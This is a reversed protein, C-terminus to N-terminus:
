KPERNNNRPRERKSVDASKDPAFCKLDEDSIGSMRWSSIDGSDRKAAWSPGDTNAKLTVRDPKSVSASLAARKVLKGNSLLEESRLGDNIIISLKFMPGKREGLNM